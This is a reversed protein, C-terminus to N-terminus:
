FEKKINHKTYLLQIEHYVKIDENCRVKQDDTTKGQQLENKTSKNSIRNRTVKFRNVSASVEQDNSISPRATTPRRFRKRAGQFM